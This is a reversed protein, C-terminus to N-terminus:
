ININEINNCQSRNLTKLPEMNQGNADVIRDEISISRPVRKEFDHVTHNDGHSAPKHKEISELRAEKDLISLDYSTDSILLAKLGNNLRVYKYEKKDSLPKIPSQLTEYKSVSDM